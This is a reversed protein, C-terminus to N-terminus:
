VNGRLFAIVARDRDDTLLTEMKVAGDSGYDILAAHHFSCQKKGSRLRSIEPASIGTKEALKRAAGHHNLYDALTMEEGKTLANTELCQKQTVASLHLGYIAIRLRLSIM